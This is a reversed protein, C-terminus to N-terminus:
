TDLTAAMQQLDSSGETNRNDFVCHARACVCVCVCVCVSLASRVYGVKDALIVDEGLM